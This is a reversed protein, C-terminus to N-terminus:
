NCFIEEFDNRVLDVFDKINSEVFVIAREEGDDYDNAYSFMKGDDDEKDPLAEDGILLIYLDPYVYKSHMVDYIYECKYEWDHQIFVPYDCSIFVGYYAQEVDVKFGCDDRSITTIYGHDYEYPNLTVSDIECDNNVAHYLLSKTLGEDGVVAVNKFDSNTILEKLFDFIKEVNQVRIFDLSDCVECKNKM